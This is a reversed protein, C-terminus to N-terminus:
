ECSQKYFARSHQHLYIARNGLIEANMRSQYLCMLKWYLM